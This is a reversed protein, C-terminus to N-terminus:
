PLYTRGRNAKRLIPLVYQFLLIGALTGLTNSIVDLFSSDRMPLYAQTLEIGLSFCFGLLVAIWYGIRASINLSFLLWSALFFGFPMFVLINIAVDMLNGRFFWQDKGPVGLITRRLPQFTAPILLSRRDDSHNQIYRGGHEDFLYLAISDKGGSSAPQGRKQWGHFHDRVEVSNLARDYFAMGLFSGTWYSEGTPTNGLILYAPSRLMDPLLLNRSYVHKLIGNLYLETGRPGSSITLLQIENRHLVNNLGWEYYRTRGIRGEYFSRIVLHTKWQGCLVIVEGRSDLLTFISAIYKANDREPRIMFEISVAGSDSISKLFDGKEQSTVIGQGYFRIGNMDQLRKVQNIPDFDFPWLCVILIGATILLCMIGLATNRKIETPAMTQLIGYTPECLCYYFIIEAGEQRLKAPIVQISNGPFSHYIISWCLELLM